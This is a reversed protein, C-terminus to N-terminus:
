AFIFITQLCEVGVFHYQTKPVGSNRWYLKIMGAKVRIKLKSLDTMPYLFTIEMQGVQMFGVTANTSSNDRLDTTKVICENKQRSM